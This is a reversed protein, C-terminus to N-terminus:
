RWIDIPVYLKKKHPKGDKTLIYIPELKRRNGSISSMEMQLTEVLYFGVQKCTSLFADQLDKCTAVNAINVALVGEDKLGYYCNELTKTLYGCIWTDSSHYKNCSQTSEESYIETNFYPPSTFCLDLSGKDPSFEESGMKYITVSKKIRKYDEKIQLLGEFTKTSPDTGIYSSCNSALFGFLRGGFGSCMDWVNGNNGYLNYILKAVSPRFNSVCQKNLFVKANQRIRNTSWVGGEHKLCFTYTKEILKRLLDDNNWNEMLSNDNWYKVDVWHPFYTWLFGCGVMKQKILDGNLLSMENFSILDRLEKVKDYDEISYNPFGNKRYFQFLYQLQNEKDQKILKYGDLTEM